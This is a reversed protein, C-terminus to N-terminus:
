TTEEFGKALADIELSGGSLRIRRVIIKETGTGIM